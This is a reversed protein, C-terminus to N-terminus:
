YWEIYGIFGYFPQILNLFFFIEFKYFGNGGLLMLAEDSSVTYFGATVIINSKEIM